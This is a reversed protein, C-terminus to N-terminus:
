FVLQGDKAVVKGDVDVTANVIPFNCGGQTKNSGGLLQNDGISIWVLGAANNPRYDAGKEIVKLAPNLGISISAFMDKPGTYPTMTEEFCKAGQDAKFSELKGNRFEFSVGTLPAYRCRDKSVVVKGTVDRDVLLQGSRDAIRM